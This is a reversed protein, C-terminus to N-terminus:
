STRTGYSGNVGGKQTRIEPLVQQNPLRDATEWWAKEGSGGLENQEGVFLLSSRIRKGFKKKFALGVWHQPKDNGNGKYSIENWHRM